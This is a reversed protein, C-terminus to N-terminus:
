ASAAPGPQELAEWLRGLPRGSETLSRFEAPTASLVHDRIVQSTKNLTFHKEIYRAGRSLALLCGEIGHMHDSYGYFGDPSFREPMGALDEPYTPYKSCCFVYRVTETPKGFPWGRGKWMGLSIFTEKGEALVKEVLAPNDAVTRAAIKYRRPELRRGLELAPETIISAMAEVQWYSCWKKLKDVREADLFNIEGPKDRWGFQFKVIDAGALKAQRIMEFVLDLNGDYNMGIEATFLM